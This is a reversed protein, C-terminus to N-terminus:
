PLGRYLFVSIGTDGNDAGVFNYSSGKFPLDQQRTRYV